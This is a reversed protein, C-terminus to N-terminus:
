TQCPLHPLESPSLEGLHELESGWVGNKLTIRELFEQDLQNGLGSCTFLNAANISMTKNLKVPQHAQVEAVAAAPAEVRTQCGLQLERSNTQRM